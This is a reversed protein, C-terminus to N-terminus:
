RSFLTRKHHCLGCAVTILMETERQNSNPNTIERVTEQQPSPQHNPIHKIVTVSTDVCGVFRSCTIWGNATWCGVFHYGIRYFPPSCSIARSGFHSRISVTIMQTIFTHFWDQRDDTAHRLGLLSLDRLSASRGCSPLDDRKGGQYKKLQELLFVNNSCKETNTWLSKTRNANVNLADWIHKLTDTCAVTTHARKM